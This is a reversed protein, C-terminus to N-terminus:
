HAPGGGAVREAVRTAAAPMVAPLRASLVAGVGAVVLLAIWILVAGQELLWAFGVPAASASSGWALQNVSVYRGRLHAPAGEVAVTTLVPGGLLEAGTYVVVGVLVASTALVASVQGAGLLVVYSAAFVGNALVLVRWRRAGTMARVVLGQAFGVLVTNITFVAGTVWGALGLVETAYVPLAFNLVMMSTSYALTAAFLRSCAPDRLVEVWTGPPGAHQGGRADPVALLLVLAVAYSAANAIVVAAYASPTDITLAVGSALGGVAFGVNRLAGLFGFWREREGEVSIAAVINGYSGWFAVRGVSVVVTWVVVALFSETVLYALFGAGQLANGGLLVRKAGVRDVLAGIAPGAPLAIASALSVAAGVQLLSLDTTALFYLLSIPMFVGSGIADIAIATVFRRHDGVSPFGLRDLLRSM